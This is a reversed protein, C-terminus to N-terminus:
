WRPGLNESMGGDPWNSCISPVRLQSRWARSKYFPISYLLVLRLLGRVARCKPGLPPEEVDPQVNAPEEGCAVSFSVGAEVKEAKRRKRM